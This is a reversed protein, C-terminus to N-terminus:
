LEFNVTLTPAYMLQHYILCGLLFRYSLIYEFDLSNSLSNNLNYTGGVTYDYGDFNPLPREIEKAMSELEALIFSLHDNLRWTISSEGIESYPICQEGGFCLIDQTSQIAFAFNYEFNTNFYAYRGM